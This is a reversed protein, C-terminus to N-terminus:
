PTSPLFDTLLQLTPTGSLKLSIEDSIEGKENDMPERVPSVITMPFERYMNAYNSKDYSSEYEWVEVYTKIRTQNARQLRWLLNTARRFSADIEILMKNAVVQTKYDVAESIDGLMMFGPMTKVSLERMPYHKRSNYKQTCWSTNEEYNNTLPGGTFYVRHRDGGLSDVTREDEQGFKNSIIITDGFELVSNFEVDIYNEGPIYPAILGLGFRWRIDVLGHTRVSPGLYPDSTPIINYYTALETVTPNLEYQGGLDATLEAQAEMDEGFTEETNRVICGPVLRIDNTSKDILWAVTFSRAVTDSRIDGGFYSGHDVLLGDQLMMM